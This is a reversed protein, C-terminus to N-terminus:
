WCSWVDVLVVSAGRSSRSTAIFPESSEAVERLVDALREHIADGPLVDGDLGSQVM